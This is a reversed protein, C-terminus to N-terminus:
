AGARESLRYTSAGSAERRAEEALTDAQLLLEQSNGATAPYCVEIAASGLHLWRELLFPSRGAGPADM